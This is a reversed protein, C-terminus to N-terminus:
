SETLSNNAVSILCQISKPNLWSEVTIDMEGFGIEIIRFYLNM